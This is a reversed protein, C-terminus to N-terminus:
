RTSKGCALDRENCPKGSMSLIKNSCEAFDRIQAQALKVVNM